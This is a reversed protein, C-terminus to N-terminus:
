KSKGYVFSSNCYTGTVSVGAVPLTTAVHLCTEWGTASGPNQSFCVYGWRGLHPVNTKLALGPRNTPAQAGLGKKAEYYVGKEAWRKSWMHISLGKRGKPFDAESSEQWDYASDRELINNNRYSIGLIYKYHWQLLTNNSSLHM